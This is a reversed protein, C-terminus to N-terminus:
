NVALNYEILSKRFKSMYYNSLNQECENWDDRVLKLIVLFNNFEKTIDQVEQETLWANEIREFLVISFASVLKRVYSTELEPMELRVKYRRVPVELITMNNLSDKCTKFKEIETRFTNAPSTSVTTEDVAWTDTDSEIQTEQFWTDVIMEWSNITKNSYIINKGSFSFVWWIYIINNLIDKISITYNYEQDNAIGTFNYTHFDSYDSEFLGWTNSWSLSYIFSIKSDENTNLDLTVLEWTNTFAVSNLIPATKDFTIDTDSWEIYWTNGVIDQFEINYIINWETNDTSLDLTYTYYNNSNSELLAYTWLIMIQTWSLEETSDFSLTITSDLWIYWWTENSATLEINSLEPELNDITFYDWEYMIDLNSNLIALKHWSFYKTNIGSHEGTYTVVVNGSSDLWTM